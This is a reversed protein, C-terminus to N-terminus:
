KMAAHLYRQATEYCMKKQFNSVGQVVWQMVYCKFPGHTVRVSVSVEVIGREM